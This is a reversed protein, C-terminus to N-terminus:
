DLGGMSVKHDIEQVKVVTDDVTDEVEELREEVKTVDEKIHNIDRGHKDVTTTLTGVKEGTEAVENKVNDIEM